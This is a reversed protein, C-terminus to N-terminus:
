AADHSEGGGRAQRDPRGDLTMRAATFVKDPTLQTMCRHDLPCVRKQCPGCDVKEQLHIARPHYTETWEIHTPGFLTIVPKDFAAAFHRPGSDTTIVLQARRICAKTLGLSLPFDALCHVHAHGANRAIASAMAKESPGCLVLVGADRDVALRHALQSFYDGPWHKASGFAAGPNLCVVERHRDLRAQRWVGDAQEEDASTIFLEMRHGPPPCGAAEALLNYADIVPSPRIAGKEDRVPKLSHTLFLGRGFRAYGIRKRCAGGFAILGSRLSNPFLLALDISSRWLRAMTALHGHSWSRPDTFVWEDFWPSGELVGAVYPKLIGHIKAEPYCRRLARLAPTAMVVDGIWNPLFLAINM